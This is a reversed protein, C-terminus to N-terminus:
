ECHAHCANILTQAHIFASQNQDTGDILRAIEEIHQQKNLSTVKISTKNTGLHKSVCLHNSAFAAVQAQHTICIIQRTRSIRQLLAGVQASTAGSLGSDSEDFVHATSLQHNSLSALVLSIRSLEGGSAISQLTKKPHGPNHNLLFSVQDFGQSSIRAPDTKVDVSFAHKQFGLQQLPESIQKSFIPAQQQRAASLQQAQLEYNRKAEDYHAQLDEEHHQLNEAQKISAQHQLLKNELEHPQCQHKRSLHMYADFRTQDQAKTAEDLQADQAIHNLQHISETLNLLVQGNLQQVEELEPFAPALPTLQQELQQLKGLLSDHDGDIQELGQHITQLLISVQDGKKIRQKCQDFDDSNPSLQELENTDYRYRALQESLEKQNTSHQTLLQECTTLKQHAQRVQQAHTVCAPLDDLTQQQFNTNLLQLQAHQEHHCVLMAALTKLTTQTVPKQNILTRTKGQLNCQRYLICQMDNADLCHAELWAQIHPQQRIDFEASLESKDASSRILQKNFTEGLVVKFAQMLMSKGSGTPGTIINLSASFTVCLSEILAFNTVTLQTLL